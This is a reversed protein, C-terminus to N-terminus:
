AVLSERFLRLAARSGPVVGYETMRKDIMDIQSRIIALGKDNLPKKEQDVPM